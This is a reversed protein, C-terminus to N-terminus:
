PEGIVQLCRSGILLIYFDTVHITRIRNITTPGDLKFRSRFEETGELPRGDKKAREITNTGLGMSLIVPTCDEGELLPKVDENPPQLETTINICGACLAAVVLLVPSRARAGTAPRHYAM